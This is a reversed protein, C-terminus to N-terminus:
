QQPQRLSARLADLTVSASGANQLVKFVKERAPTSTVFDAYAKALLARLRRYMEVEDDGDLGPEQRMYQYFRKLIHLRSVDLVAQEYPLGFFNLFDEAASLQKLHEILTNM